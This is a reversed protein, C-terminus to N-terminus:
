IEAKEKMVKLWYHIFKLQSSQALTQPFKVFNHCFYNQKSKSVCHLVAFDVSSSLLLFFQQLVTMDGSSSLTIM